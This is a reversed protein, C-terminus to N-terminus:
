WVYVWRWCVGFTCGGGVCGLRVGVELVGWVYVWARWMWESVGWSREDQCFMVVRVFCSLGSLCIVFRKDCGWPGIGGGGRVCREM